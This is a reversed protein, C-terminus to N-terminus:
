KAKIGLIRRWFSIKKEAGAVTSTLFSKMEAVIEEANHQTEVVISETKDALRALEERDIFDDAALAIIQAADSKPSQDKKPASKKQAAKKNATAKKPADKKVGAKKAPAKKAATKTAAAKKPTKKNTAM